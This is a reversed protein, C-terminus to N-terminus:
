NAGCVLCTAPDLFLDFIVQLRLDLHLPFQFPFCSDRISICELCSVQLYMMM